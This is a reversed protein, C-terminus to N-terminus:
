YPAPSTRTALGLVKPSGAHGPKIEFGRGRLEGSLLRHIMPREGNADCWQVYDQHLDKLYVQAAPDRVCRDALFQGLVDEEERYERTVDQVEAPQELGKAQWDLCGRVMWALIGPAEARLRAKMGLDVRYLEHGSEGKAPDWFQVRFPVLLLRRWIGHDNGKVTPRHNTCLILKHTPSFEWHDQRMKRARIKDGGTLQKVLAEDLRRNQATETAVVLRKGWLDALETPHGETHKSMLFGPPAQMAYAAGVVDQVVDLLTSKGNSGGGWFIPLLNTLVEGTLCYGLLRQLFGVVAPNGGLEPRQPDRPFVRDLFLEWAPCRASPDYPTPM